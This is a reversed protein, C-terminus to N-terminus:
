PPSPGSPAPAMETTLPRTIRDGTLPEIVRDRPPCERQVSIDLSGAPGPAARMRARSRSCRPKNRETCNPRAAPGHSKALRGLAHDLGRALDRKAVRSVERPYCVLAEATSRM